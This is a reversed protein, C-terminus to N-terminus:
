ISMMPPSPSCITTAASPLRAGAVLWDWTAQRGFLRGGQGLTGSDPALGNELVFVAKLGDGLDETGRFGLRSPFMGGGLSPMRTVSHGAADANGYYEVAADLIGYMTVNSQAHAAGALMAAGLAMLKITTNM